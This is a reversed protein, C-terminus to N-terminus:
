LEENTANTTNDTNNMLEDETEAFYQREAIKKDLTASKKGMEKAKKWQELAKEKEGSVYLIDGYHDIIEPSNTRDKAISQEIYIKALLYNGQVFFIWAYTDIYTSNEPDLKMCLASMREAKTLDKKLLSLYYAYNNLVSINKDNYLLAKEYNAFASDTKNIKFYTDGIQGYFDSILPKNEEPITVIASQYINIAELYDGKQFYSVGLYLKFLAEEPFINVCKKCINIVEDFNNKRLYLALLQQWAALNDPESETVLQYQFQAEESKDQSALFDGYALKLRSEEPHQELLTQFLSNAGEIDQKSRQLQMIYRALISLKTNVDLQKNLLAGNIQKKAAESDGTKEYYNAMSVHYYPSEPDIEHAKNYHQLAKVTDDQQLYLDGTMIMYRTEAPFKDILKQMEDFAKEPKELTLYLQYKALSLAEHMGMVNELANYTDIAKGIEGMRTYSEALYYNLEPKDPMKNVLYEYEEAAEGFMGLNFMLSALINHYDENDPAYRIAKKILTVAKDPKEMDLYYSSLEYLTAASTSDIDLCRKFMEYSADFKEANKLKLGEYFFYDVKRQEESTLVKKEEQGYM